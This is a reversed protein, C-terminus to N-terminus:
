FKTENAADVIDRVTILAEKNDAFGVLYTMIVSLDSNLSRTDPVSTNRLILNMCMCIYSAALPM